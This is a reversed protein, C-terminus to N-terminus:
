TLDAMIQRRSRGMRPRNVGTQSTKTARTARKNVAKDRQKRSQALEDELRIAGEGLAAM